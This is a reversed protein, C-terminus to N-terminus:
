LVTLGSFMMFNFCQIYAYHRISQANVLGLVKLGRKM